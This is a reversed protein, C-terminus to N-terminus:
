HSLTLVKSFSNAGEKDDIKVEVKEIVVHIVKSLFVQDRHEFEDTVLIVRSPVIELDNFVLLICWSGHLVIFRSRDLLIFDEHCQDLLQCVSQKCNTGDMHLVRVYLVLPLTVKRTHKGAHEM